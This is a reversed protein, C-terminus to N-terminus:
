KMLVKRIEEIRKRNVGMDSYGLRSASRVAISKSKPRLNFEVDDVFGLLTSRAEAHIYSDSSTVLNINNQKGLYNQLRQFTDPANVQIVKIFHEESSDDSSVCNPTDPCLALKGEIVGIDTPISGSCGALLSTFLIATIATTKSNM